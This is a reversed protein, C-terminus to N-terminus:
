APPTPHHTEKYAGTCRFAALASLHTPPHPPGWPCVNFGVPQAVSGKPSVISVLVCGNQPTPVSRDAGVLSDGSLPRPPGPAVQTQTGARGEM